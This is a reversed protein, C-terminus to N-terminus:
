ASDRLCRELFDRADGLEDAIPESEIDGIAGDDTYNAQMSLMMAALQQRLRRKFNEPLQDLNVSEDQGSHNQAAQAIMQDAYQEALKEVTEQNMPRDDVPIYVLFFM